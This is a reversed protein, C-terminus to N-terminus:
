IFIFFVRVWPLLAASVIRYLWNSTIQSGRGRVLILCTEQSIIGCVFCGEWNGLPQLFVFHKTSRLYRDRICMEEMIRVEKESDYYLYCCTRWVGCNGFQYQTGYACLSNKRDSWLFSLISSRGSFLGPDGSPAPSNKIFKKGSSAGCNRCLIHTRCICHRM